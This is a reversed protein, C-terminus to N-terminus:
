DSTYLLCASLDLLVLATVESNDVARIINNLVSIVATETNHHRRYASQNSPFLRHREAHSTFRTAVVREVFKSAFSLNSIPRYSNADEVDLTPKKLRPFVIASKQTDPLNGSQLSANCMERLVPALVHSARKVLWTPAPDLPCHKTPTRSLLRVVEDVSVPAFSSFSTAVLQTQIVPPPASATSARIKDVKSTFFAAFDDASFHSSDQHTPPSMQVRLKSWLAKSDGRCSDITSTWYDRLKQQFLQRQLKFQVQWLKKDDEAQTRRYLKELHCTEKKERRCDEDYWPATRAARICVTKVPAHVDLLSRLTTDYRDFSEAVNRAKSPHLVMESQCLDAYFGDYDFQRWCRCERRVTTHNQPVLLDLRGVICSHDSLM